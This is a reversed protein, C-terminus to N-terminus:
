VTDERINYTKYFYSNKDELLTKPPGEEVIRGDDLVLIRDCNLLTSLRHAIVLMTIKGKLEGVAKQIMFESVNDLASTAEDLILIQPQRALVRALVLRQKEGGSLLIGREGVPAQFGEPQEQIFDYIYAMKSAAEIEENSLTNDYFRINNEITDNMVFMEQSVYGIHERWERIDVQSIDVNDVTIRGKSPEFLRLILDSITTKGAGSKGVLGVMEGRAVQLNIKSLITRDTHYAFHVNQFKLAENFAFQETGSYREEHTSAKQEFDIVSQLSPIAHNITYASSQIEQIHGFVRYVLFMIVAFSAFQFDGAVYSFSFIASVFIVVTPEILINPISEFIKVRFQLDRLLKFQRDAEDSVDREIFGSKVSKLGMVHENVHHAISKNTDVIIKSLKRTQFFLPKLIVFLLGASGLSLLTIPPSIQFAIVVYVVLSSVKIVLTSLSRLLAKSMQIDRMLVTELYGVKQKMLYAWKALLTKRFLNSRTRQEYDATIKLTVYQAIMLVIAKLIFVFVMFFLLVKLGLGLDFQAFFVEIARSIFDDASEGGTFRAFLPILANIGVGELFGSFFGLAILVVIQLKYKGYGTHFFTVITGLKM